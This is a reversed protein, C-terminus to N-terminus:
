PGVEDGGLTRHYRRAAVTMLEATATLYYATDTYRTHGLYTALAPLMAQVDVERRYWSILRQVAFRHRLSHFNPGRGTAARLGIQRGLRCLAGELTHRAYRRGRLSRFFAACDRSPIAADRAARYHRLVAVTSTHMPVMRDKKFKTGRIALVGADFDVDKEDLRVVEGIRLGTSAALGIMAYLAVGRIPHKASIGPAQQLLTALENESFLLLAPRESHRPLAKPDLAPTRLDFVALYESFHRVFQYRRWCETRTIGPNATAFAIALGQTLFGRYRRRCVFMDFMRLVAAQSEMKYGVSRRLNIYDNLRKAFISKFSM